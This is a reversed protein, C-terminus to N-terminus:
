GGVVQVETITLDGSGHGISAYRTTLVGTLPSNVDFNALTSSDFNVTITNNTVATVPVNWVGTSTNTWNANGSGVLGIYDGVVFDHAPTGGLPVTLVTTTGKTAATIKCRKPGYNKVLIGGELPISLDDHTASITSNGSFNIHAHTGIACVWYIGTKVEYAATSAVSSNGITLHPLKQVVKLVSM